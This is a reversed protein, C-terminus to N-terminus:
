QKFIRFVKVSDEARVQLIYGGNSLTGLDIQTDNNLSKKLILKGTTDFILIEGNDKKSFVTLENQVITASITVWNEKELKSISNTPFYAREVLTEDVIFPNLNGQNNSIAINREEEKTDVPDNIHWELLKAKQDHFFSPDASNAVTQYITYFYFIARAIDGKVAERPEFACDEEDKESYDDINVTPINNSQMGLYFWTETDSDEIDNYKCNGRAENVNVKCPFINHLDGRQPESAAGLSQPYVHEANLGAGNQFASQSPDENPDLTVTFGTYIGSLDQGINDIQSYLIDRAPGYGLPTTPTYNQQLATILETGFKDPEITQGQTFFPILLLLFIRQIMPINKQKLM